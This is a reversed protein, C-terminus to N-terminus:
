KRVISRQRECRPNNYAGSNCIFFKVILLVRKTNRREERENMRVPVSVARRTEAPAGDSAVIEVTIEKVDERDLIAPNAVRLEGNEHGLTFDNCHEGVLSYTVQGYSEADADTATVKTILTGIFSNELVSAKYESQLLTPSLRSEARRRILNIYFQTHSNVWKLSFQITTMSM